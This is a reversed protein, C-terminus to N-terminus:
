AFGTTPSTAVGSLQIGPLAGLCMGTLRISTRAAGISACARAYDAYRPDLYDPLKQWDWLSEGAYGREVTRDLNDWHDLIRHPIRPTSTLDLRDLPRSTQLLRLFHFTGYLLGIDRKASIMTVHHGADLASRIVYGSEGVTTLGPNIRLVVGGDKTTRSVMSPARLARSLEALAIHLTPSPSDTAVIEPVNPLAHYRLWLDYGDEAFALRVVGLLLLGLLSLAKMDSSPVAVVASTRVAV